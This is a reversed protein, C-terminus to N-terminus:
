VDGKDKKKEEEARLVRSNNKTAVEWDDMLINSLTYLIDNSSKININEGNKCHMIINSNKYVWYGDWVKRKIPTGSVFSAFLNKFTKDKLLTSTTTKFFDHEFPFTSAGFLKDNFM